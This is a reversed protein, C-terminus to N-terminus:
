EKKNGCKCKEKVPKKREMEQLVGGYFVRTVLIPNEAGVKGKKPCVFVALVLLAQPWALCSNLAFCFPDAAMALGSSVFAGGRETAERAGAWGM